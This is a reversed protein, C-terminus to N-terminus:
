IFSKKESVLPLAKTWVADGFLYLLVFFNTDLSDDWVSIMPLKNAIIKVGTHTLIAIQYFFIYIYSFIGENNFEANQQVRCSLLPQGKRCKNQLFSLSLPVFLGGGRLDADRHTTICWSIDKEQLTVVCWAFLCRILIPLFSREYKSVCERASCHVLSCGTHNPPPPPRNFTFLNFPLHSCHSSGTVTWCSCVVTFLSVM